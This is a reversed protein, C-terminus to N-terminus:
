DIGGVVRCCCCGGFGQAERSASCFSSPLLQALIPDEKYRGFQKYHEKVHDFKQEIQVLRAMHKTNLPKSNRAPPEGNGPPREQKLINARKSPETAKAVECSTAKRKAEVEVELAKSILTKITIYAYLTVGRTPHEIQGAKELISKLQEPTNNYKIHLDMEDLRANYQCDKDMTTEKEMQLLTIDLQQKLQTGALSGHQQLCEKQAEKSPWDITSKASYARAAPLQM